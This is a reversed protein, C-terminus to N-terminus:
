IRTYFRPGRVKGPALIGACCVVGGIPAKTNQSWEIADSVGKTIDTTCSIDVPYFRVLESPLDEEAADIPEALDFLAVRAGSHALAQATARGLGSSRYEFYTLQTTSVPLDQTRGGPSM